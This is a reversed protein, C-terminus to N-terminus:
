GISIKVNRSKDKSLSFMYDVRMALTEERIEKM